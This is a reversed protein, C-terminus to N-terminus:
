VEERCKQLCFPSLVKMSIGKTMLRVEATFCLYIGFFDKRVIKTMQEGTHEVADFLINGLEGINESVAADIRCPDINDRGACFVALAHFTHTQNYLFAPTLPSQLMIPIIDYFIPHYM